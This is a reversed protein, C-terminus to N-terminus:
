KSYKEQSVLILRFIRRLEKADSVPLIENIASVLQRPDLDLGETFFFEIPDLQLVDAIKQIMEFPPTEIGGTELRSIYGKESQSKGIRSELEEQTIGRVKRLIALRARFREGINLSM